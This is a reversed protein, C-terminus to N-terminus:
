HVEAPRSAETGAGLIGLPLDPLRRDTEGVFLWLAEDVGCREPDVVVFDRVIVICSKDLRGPM